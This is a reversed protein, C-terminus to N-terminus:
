KALVDWSSMHIRSLGITYFSTLLLVRLMWWRELLLHYSFVAIFILLWHLPNLLLKHQIECSLVSVVSFSSATPGIQLAPFYQEDGNEVPEDRSQWSGLIGCNSLHDALFNKCCWCQSGFNYRSLASQSHPKWTLFPQANSLHCVLIVPWRYGTTHALLFNYLACQKKDCISLMRTCLQLHTHGYLIHKCAHPKIHLHMCSSSFLYLCVAVNQQSQWGQWECWRRLLDQLRKRSERCWIMVVNDTSGWEFHNCDLNVSSIGGM